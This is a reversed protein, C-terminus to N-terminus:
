VVPRAMLVPQKLPAAPGPGPPPLRGPDYPVSGRGDSRVRWLQM